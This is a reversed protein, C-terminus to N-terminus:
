RKVEVIKTTANTSNTGNVANPADAMDIPLAGKAKAFPNTALKAESTANSSVNTANTVNSPMTANTKGNDALAAFDIPGFSRDSASFSRNNRKEHSEEM